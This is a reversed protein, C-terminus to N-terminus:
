VKYPKAIFYVRLSESWSILSRSTVALALPHILLLFPTCKFNSPVAPLIPRERRKNVAVAAFTHPQGTQTVHTLIQGFIFWAFSETLISSTGEIGAHVRFIILPHLTIIWLLQSLGKHCPLRNNRRWRHSLAPARESQSSLSM